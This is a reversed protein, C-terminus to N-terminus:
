ACRINSRLDQRAAFAPNIHILYDERVEPRRAFM